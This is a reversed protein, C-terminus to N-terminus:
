GMPNFPDKLSPKANPYVVIINNSEAWQNYGGNMPWTNSIFTESQLCGHFSFHLRCQQGKQCSTPVYLFGIDGLSALPTNPLNPIYLTQDFELLNSTIANTRPNLTGFFHKFAEGAGDYDCLGM